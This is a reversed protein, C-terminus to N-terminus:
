RRSATQALRVPPTLPHAMVKHPAGMVMVAEVGTIAVLAALMLAPVIESQSAPSPSASEVSM